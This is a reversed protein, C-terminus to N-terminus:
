PGEWSDRVRQIDPARQADPVRQDDLSRRQSDPTRGVKLPVRVIM